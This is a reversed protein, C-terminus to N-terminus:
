VGCGFLKSGKKPVQMKIGLVTLLTAMIKAVKTVMNSYAFKIAM